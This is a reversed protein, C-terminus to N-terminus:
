SAASDRLPLFASISAMFLKTASLANASLSLLKSSLLM